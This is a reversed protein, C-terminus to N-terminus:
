KAPKYNKYKEKEEPKLYKNSDIAENKTMQKPQPVGTDVGEQRAYNRLWYPIHADSDVDPHVAPATVSQSEIQTQLQNALAMLEEPTPAREKVPPPVSARTAVDPTSTGGLGFLPRSPGSFSADPISQQGVSPAQEQVRLARGDPGIRLQGSDNDEYLYDVDGM